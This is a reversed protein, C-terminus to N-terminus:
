RHKSYARRGRKLSDVSCTDQGTFRIRYGSTEVANERTGTTRNDESIRRQVIHVNSMTRSSGDQSATRQLIGKIAPTALPDQYTQNESLETSTRRHSTKLSGIDSKQNIYYGRRNPTKISCSRDQQQNIELKGSSERENNHQSMQSRMINKRDSISDPIEPIFGQDRFLMKKAFASDGVYVKKYSNNLTCTRQNSFGGVFSPATSCISDRTALSFDFTDQKKLQNQRKHIFVRSENQSRIDNDVKCNESAVCDKNEDKILQVRERSFRRITHGLDTSELCQDECNESITFRNM